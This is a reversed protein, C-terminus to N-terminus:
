QYVDGLEGDALRARMHQLAPIYREIHGVCGLVNAAEFAAVLREAAAADQAVPKEILAAVGAVALQTGIVEHTATPTAVVCMDLGQGILEESSRYVPVGAAAGSADGMSDSVGVLEVGNLSRLVRAHNRGMMGLGVLGARLKSM